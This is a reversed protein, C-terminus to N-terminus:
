KLVVVKVSNSLQGISDRARLFYMGATRSSDAALTLLFKGAEAEYSPIPRSDVLRGRIDYVLIQVEGRAAGELALGFVGQSPNSSDVRLFVARSNAPSHAIESLWEYRKDVSERRVRYRLVGGPPSSDTWSMQTEATARLRAVVEFEGDNIARLVAWWTEPAPESLNWTIRRGSGTRHISPTSSTASTYTHLWFVGNGFFRMFAVWVDGNVDRAVTPGVGEESQAVEDALTWGSDTPVCACIVGVGRRSDHSGWAVAPYEGTDRSLDFADSSHQNLYIVGPHACQLTDVPGWSGDRYAVIEVHPLKTAWGLWHGGSPRPRFRLAGSLPGGLLGNGETWGLAGSLGWRVGDNESAWAVLATTEDLATVAVGRSGIGLAEAESWTNPSDSYFLRLDVDGDSTVAWRRTVSM